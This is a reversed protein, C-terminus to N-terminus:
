GAAAASRLRRSRGTGRSTRARSADAPAAPAAVPHAGTFELSRPDFAAVGGSRVERAIRVGSIGEAEAAAEAVASALNRARRTFVLARVGNQAMAAPHTYGACELRETTSAVTLDAGIVFLCFEHTSM